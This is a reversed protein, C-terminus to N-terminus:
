VSAHIVILVGIASSFLTISVWVSKIPLTHCPSLKGLSSALSGVGGDVIWGLTRGPLQGLRSPFLIGKCGGAKGGVRGWECVSGFKLPSSFVDHM